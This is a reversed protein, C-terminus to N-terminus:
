KYLDNINFFLKAQKFNFMTDIDIAEPYDIKYFKSKGSLIKNKFNKIKRIFVVGGDLKYIKKTNNYSYNFKKIVFDNKKFSITREPQSKFDLSTISTLVDYKNNSFIKCCRNITKLKRLPSTPQLIVSADYYLNKRKLHNVAHRLVNEMKANKGSINKPRKLFEVNKFKNTIKKIDDNDSSVLIKDFYKCKSAIKITWYILPKKFFSLVNKNKLRTSNKRAPILCFYKM